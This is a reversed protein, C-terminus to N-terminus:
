HLVGVWRLALLALGVATVTGFFGFTQRTAREPLFTDFVRGSTAGYRVALDTLPCRLGNAVLAVGEIGLLLLAVWLWPGKAGTIGAYVLVFTSFAMMVYIITHVARVLSLRQEDSVGLRGLIPSLM